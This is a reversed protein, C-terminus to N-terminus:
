YAADFWRAAHHHVALDDDYQQKWTPTTATHGMYM